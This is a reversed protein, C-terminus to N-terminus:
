LYGMAKLRAECQAPNEFKLVRMGLRAAPVLNAEMDDVFLTQGPSLNYERLLHQYVAEEPKCLQLRCSIALGSFVEWFTCSRELREISARHLNSLCFLMHGRDKLRYLLDVTQPIPVLIAPVAKLFRLVRDRSLGTREAARSAADEVALTGRDLGVWDSHGIIGTLVASRDVPESFLDAVLAEPEWTVVVGGLDFIIDL